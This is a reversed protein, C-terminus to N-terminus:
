LKQAILRVLNHLQVSIYGKNENVKNKMTEVLIFSHVRNCLKILSLLASGCATKLSAVDLYINVLM